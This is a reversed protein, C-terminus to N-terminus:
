KAGAALADAVARRFDNMDRHHFRWWHEPDHHASATGRRWGEDHSIIEEVRITPYQGILFVCLAVAANWVADFYPQYAAPDYLAIDFDSTYIMGGPECIEIGIHDNNDAGGAHWARHTWPLYQMVCTDDLFAHVCVENAFAPDSSPRNWMGFWDAARVGPDATSHITIGAPVITRPDHYCDNNTMYKEIIPLM